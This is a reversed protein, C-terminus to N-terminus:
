LKNKDEEAEESLRQRLDNWGREETLIAAYHEWQGGRVFPFVFQAVQSSIFDVPKLVDLMLIVPSRLGRQQIAEALHQIAESPHKRTPM